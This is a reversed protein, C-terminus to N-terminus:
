DKKTLLGKVNKATITFTVAKSGVCTTSGDDARVVVTAKGKNTNNIFEVKYGGDLATANKGKPAVVLKLNESLEIPEGTYDVKTVKKNNGDIFYINAKSLDLVNAAPKTVTYDGTAEFTYNGKGTVTVEVEASAGAEAADLDILNARGVVEGKYKYTVTYDSAKLLVGDAVVYPKSVYTGKKTYVKDLSTVEVEASTLSAPVVKFTNGSIAKNGKYNNLFTITYKALSKETSVKKNNSYTIKYDVGETLEEALAGEGSPTYTVVVDREGLTAGTSKYSYGEADVKTTDVALTGGNVKTSVANIKCTKTVSGTYDETGIVTFKVTGANTTDGSFVVKYDTGEILKTDATRESAKLSSPYVKISAKINDKQDDGDYYLKTKTDVVVAIKKANLDAKKVVTVEIDRTDTYNGKGAITIKGTGATTFVGKKLDLATSNDVDTCATISYDKNTLKVGYYALVPAVKSVKTNEAIVIAGASVEKIDAQKIKFSVTASGTLNGKGTVTITPEKKGTTSLIEGEADHSAKVNNTYKVTYASSDVEKNNFTVTIEPKIASGTYTYETEELTVSLTNDESTYEDGTSSGSGTRTVNITISSTNEDPTITTNGDIKATLTDVTATGAADKVQLEYSVGIKLVVPEGSTLTYDEGTAVLHVKNDGLSAGTITPVVSVAVKTIVVQLNDVAESPATYKSLGNITASLTKDETQGDKDMVKLTYEVNKALTVKTGNTLAVKDGEGPVLYVVKDGLLTTDFAPTVDVSIDTIKITITDEDKDSPATYDTADTSSIQAIKTTVVATGDANMVKLDYKKGKVARVGNETLVIHNDGDVLCVVFSGDPILEGTFSTKVTILTTDTVTITISDTAQTPATYTASGSVKANMTQVANEGEADRVELTYPTGQVLTVATKDTIPYADTGDVLYVVNTGLADGAITPTVTISIDTVTISVEGDKEPVTFENDSGSAVNASLTKVVKGDADKVVLTYVAKPALKISVENKLEYSVASEGNGATIYLKNGDALADFKPTVSVKKVAKIILTDNSDSSAPTITTSGNSFTVAYDDLVTGDTNKVALEYETGIALQISGNINTVDVTDRDKSVLYIKDTGLDSNGADYSLTVTVKPANDVKTSDAPVEVTTDKGSFADWTDLFDSIAIANGTVRDADSTLTTAWKARSTTNDTYKAEEFTNYETMGISQGNLTDLWGVPMILSASKDFWHADSADVVTNYFVVDSTDKAWPRGFYGPKSTYTSATDTGPTTSTVHCNWMLYGRGSKQQAATIYGLDGDDDSTNFVLDCKAFVATMGGFIYDTAGYISCKYFAATVGTGGYLTDQRGIFKCGDFSVQTCDNAIALAAAREVYKKGQVTTDGEKMNARPATADEKYHIDRVDDDVPVATDAAAKASIYQNFSNEFIINEASVNSGTIVVTANWYTNTGSGKNQYTPTGNAESVALVADSYKYDAGMSYYDYGHGYYSTIRVANDDINVGKDKLAISPSTSANVLKVNDVDIVLMEEYNGPEIKITVAQKAADRDMERVADLAANITTYDKGDAGVTIESKYVGTKAPTVKIKTLYTEDTMTIDVYGANGTYTYDVSSTTLDVTSDTVGVTGNAKYYGTVTVTCNGDVPVQIKSDAKGLAYTSKNSKINTLKLGKWDATTFQGSPFNKEFNADDFSWETIGYSFNVTATAVAGDVTLWPSLEQVYLGSDEVTVSYTGDRLAINSTGTFTYSYGEENLNEFIFTANSLADTLGSEYTSDDIVASITIAYTTKKEFTIDKTTPEAIAVTTGVSEALKYDNVGAVTLTYSVESELDATYTVSNDDGTTIVVEPKYDETTEFSLELNAVDAAEIGTIKGSLKVKAVSKVTINHTVSGADKSLTLEKGSSIVYDNADKLSLTYAYQEQLQASYAGNTVPIEIEEETTTNKAIITLSEPLTGTVTGSVTANAVHERTIRCVVLKENSSYIKYKGTTKANFTVVEGSQAATQTQSDTGSVFVLNSAASNGGSAIKVIDGKTAYIEVYAKEGVAGNVYLAGKYDTKQWKNADYIISSNVGTSADGYLRINKGGSTFHFYKENDGSNITIDSTFIQKGSKNGKSDVEETTETIANNLDAATLMNIYTNEDLTEAGIDWVAIKSTDVSTTSDQVYEVAIDHIYSNTAFTLTVEGTANSVTYTVGTKDGETFDVNSLEGSSSTMTTDTSYGCVNVTINAKKGSKLNLVMTADDAKTHLGHSNGEGTVISNLTIGDWSTADSTTFDISGEAVTTAASTDGGGQEGGTTDAAGIEIKTIYTSGTLAITVTGAGTGTYNYSTTAVTNTTQSTNSIEVTDTGVGITGAALYYHSVTVKCPGTVPVGISSNSGGIIHGKLTSSDSSVTETTIGSLTLGEYETSDKTLGSGGTFTASTFDWTTPTVTEGTEGGGAEGSGESSSPDTEVPTPDTNSEVVEVKFIFNKNIDGGLYYTGASSLILEDYYPSNQTLTGHSTKAVSTGASDLITMERNNDGGEVWWVKVTAYQKTTTFQISCQKTTAKGSFNIRNVGSVKYHYLDQDEGWEASKNDDVKSTNSYLLTFYPTNDGKTTGAQESSKVVNGSSNSFATLDKSELTYTVDDNGASVQLDSTYLSTFTLAVALVLALKQRISKHTKFLYGL